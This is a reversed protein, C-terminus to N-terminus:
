RYTSSVVVIGGVKEEPESELKSEFTQNTRASKSYIDQLAVFEIQWFPLLSQQIVAM